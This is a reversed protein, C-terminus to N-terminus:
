VAPLLLGRGYLSEFADSSLLVDFPLPHLSPRRIIQTIRQLLWM